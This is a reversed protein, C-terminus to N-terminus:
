DQIGAAHLIRPGDEAPVTVFYRGSRAESLAAVAAIGFDQSLEVAINNAHTRNVRCEYVEDRKRWEHGTLQELADIIPDARNASAHPKRM